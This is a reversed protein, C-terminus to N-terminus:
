STPIPRYSHFKSRVSCSSFLRTPSTLRRASHLASSSSRSASSPSSSTCAAPRFRTKDVAQRQSCLIGPDCPPQRLRRSPGVHWPDARYPRPRNREHHRHLTTSKSPSYLLSFPALRLPVPSILSARLVHCQAASTVAEKGSNLLIGKFQPFRLLHLPTYHLVSCATCTCTSRNLDECRGIGPCFAFM